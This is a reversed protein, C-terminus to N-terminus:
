FTVVWRDPLRQRDRQGREPRLARERPRDPQDAQHGGISLTGLLRLEGGNVQLVSVDNSGANVAFLRSNHLILGGQSALADAVVGNGLGQTQVVPGRRLQGSEARDFVVISNGEPLNTMAYVFGGRREQSHATQSVVLVPLALAAIGGLTVVSNRVSRM